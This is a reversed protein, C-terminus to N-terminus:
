VTVEVDIEDVCTQPRSHNPATHWPGEKTSVGSLGDIPICRWNDGSGPAALGSSSTGGFQYFLAQERGNKKGIAHPSMERHHGNYSAVVQDKNIIAQRVLMYVSGPLKDAGKEVLINTRMHRPYGTPQPSDFKAMLSTEVGDHLCLCMAATAKVCRSGTTHHHQWGGAPPHACRSM